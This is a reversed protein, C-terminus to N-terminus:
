KELAQYMNQPDELVMIDVIKDEFTAEDKVSESVSCDAYEPDSEGRLRQTLCRFASHRRCCAATRNAQGLHSLLDSLANFSVSIFHDKWM